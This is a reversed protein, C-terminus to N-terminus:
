LPKEVLKEKFEEENKHISALPEFEADDVFTDESTVILGNPLRINYSPMFPNLYINMHDKIRTDIPGKVVKIRVM